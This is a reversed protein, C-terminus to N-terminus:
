ADAERLREVVTFRAVSRYVALPVLVGLVLFVPLVALLPLATFRYTFFWFIGSVAHGALPGLLLCLALSLALALLTYYLGEYVLMTKLQRGTMGISQLVAFERKRTLIGTLVANIFNLVGVLGIIFSLAGGLTLFMGRFGEFEDMYSQKSEYDYNPQVTETYGALFDEMAGNSDETTDCTYIMVLDTGTDKKFQEAGLVYDDAGVLGYRFSLASPVTVLACVTYDKEEYVKPRGVLTDSDGREYRADVEDLSLEEGTTRDLYMWESVYRLTVTDGVRAWATDPMLEGYDDVYGVAAIANQTPDKLPELDGEIVKLKSLPFDEMGYLLADTVVRGDPLHEAYDVKRQAADDGFSQWAQRLWDETVFQQVSWSLAYVRGSDTIGSQADIDAIMEEPVANDGSGFGGSGAVFQDAHGVIFDTVVNGSLYKEMDFGNTFTYTLTMLVVALTLSLVTVVTKSRSRGLNAWAMKPLSAGNVAQKGTRKEAPKKKSLTQGGETYRVAEVPSVKAAMRGPRACSLFVTVLSFAAAGLFIWPNFTVFANKYSLTSMIVPTLGNGIVFGLLLGLPIGVCSLLLAQQRIIRKLQRGTAGITKLLGYFRIDNTVSIQFVNYIILYGTFIILLLIAGIALVTELDISSSFRSATHAWSVGIKLYNDAGVDTNQYGQNELVTELNERINVANKFMVDMTWKGTMSMADGSSLAILEEAGSRPLLVHNAVVASDYEWWGSLTFTREVVQGDGVNFDITIPLTIKAGIEPEVGLLALVHTDTAAEDTGERPLTGEVPTCFYHPAGEPEIYSVEVHSKNFPPEDLTGVFLRGWSSVILPDDQFAEMQERTIDKVAGHADGGMRRFNEQQYSYNISAAITFLSTFLITTLAIALVAVFNRTRAAKMSRFGLRRICKGNSVRIM